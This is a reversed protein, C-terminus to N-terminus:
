FLLLLDGPPVQLLQQAYSGFTQHSFTWQREVPRTVPKGEIRGRVTVTRGVPYEQEDVDWCAYFLQWSEDGTSLCIEYLGQRVKTLDTLNEVVGTIHLKRNKSYKVTAVKENLAYRDRLQM